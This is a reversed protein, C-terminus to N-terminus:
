KGGSLQEYSERVHDAERRIQPLALDAQFLREVTAMDDRDYFAAVKEGAHTAPPGGIEEGSFESWKDHAGPVWQEIADVFDTPFASFPVVADYKQAALLIRDSQPSWHANARLGGNDLFSLFESFGEPSLAFEGFNRRYNPSRFKDLFASLTHSFPDRVVILRKARTLAFVGRAGLDSLHVAHAKAEGAAQHEGHELYHLFSMATSNGNKQLRNFAIGIRPFYAVQKLNRVEPSKGDVSHFLLRLALRAAKRPGRQERESITTHPGDM